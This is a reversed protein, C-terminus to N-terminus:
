STLDLEWVPRIYAQKWGERLRTVARDYADMLDMEPRVMSQLQLGEYLAILQEAGRPPQMTPPERGEIIDQELGKQVMLQFQYWRGRLHPAMPHDPTAAINVTASLMRMLAPDAVNAAVIGRLFRVTGYAGLLPLISAMREENWRDITALVLGDWSPFQRRVDEVPLDATAALLEFTAEHFAHARFMRISARIIAARAFVSADLTGTPNHTTM